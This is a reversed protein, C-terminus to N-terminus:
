KANTLLFSFGVLSDTFSASVVYLSYKWKMLSGSLVRLLLPEFMGLHTNFIQFAMQTGKETERSKTCEETHVKILKMFPLIASNNMHQTQGRLASHADMKWVLACMYVSVPPPHELCVNFHKPQDPKVRRLAVRLEGIFENHTLKDEDCVSVRLSLHLPILPFATAVNGNWTM